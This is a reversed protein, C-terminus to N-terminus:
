RQEDGPAAPGGDDVAQGGAHARVGGGPADRFQRMAARDAEGEREVDLGSLERIRDAVPEIEGAPSIRQWAGAEGESLPPDVMGLALIRRELQATTRAEQVALVEDRSLGRVRVTGMSPVEVDAEPMGHPTDARPALLKEKDIM